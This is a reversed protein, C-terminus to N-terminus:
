ETVDMLFASARQGIHTFTRYTFLFHVPFLDALAILIFLAFKDQEILLLQLLQGLLAAFADGNQIEHIQRLDVRNIKM